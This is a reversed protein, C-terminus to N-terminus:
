CGVEFWILELAVAAIFIKFCLPPWMLPMLVCWSGAYNNKNSACVFELM